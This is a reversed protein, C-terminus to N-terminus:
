KLVIDYARIAQLKGIWVSLEPVDALLKYYKYFDLLPSGQQVKHYNTCTKQGKPLARNLLM